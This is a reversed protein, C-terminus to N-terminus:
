TSRQKESMMMTGAAGRDRYLYMHTHPHTPTHTHTTSVQRLRTPDTNIVSPVSHDVNCVLEVGKDRVTVQFLSFFFFGFGMSCVSLKRSEVM